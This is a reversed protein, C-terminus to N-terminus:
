RQRVVYGKKRLMEVLGRPGALHLSGVAIFHREKSDNLYGEIKKMMAEHRSWVFKEEFDRAGTVNENYKRAVELMLGPDGTQWANVMGVIQEGILGTELAKVTGEFADRHEDETLSDMLRMQSDVGELEVIAKKQEKAKRILYSDIGLSPLFGLRAWESFVLVSVAMFPKMHSLQQETIAYRPLLKRFREYDEKSVHAALSDPAKYTMSYETTSIAKTDTIDAEVVLVASDELAKEVPAPLPYWDKRGAHVTGYLYVKNTLSSVEWLFQRGALQAPVQAIAQFAALLGLTTILGRLALPLRIKM